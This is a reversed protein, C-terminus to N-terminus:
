DIFTLSIAMWLFYARGQFYEAQWDARGTESGPDEASGLQHEPKPLLRSRTALSSM